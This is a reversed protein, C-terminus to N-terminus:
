AMDEYDDESPLRDKAVNLLIDIWDILSWILHYSSSSLVLIETM